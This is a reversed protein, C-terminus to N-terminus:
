EAVAVRARSSRFMVAILAGAIFGGIHCDFATRSALIEANWLSFSQVLIYFGLVIWAPVDIRRIFFWVPCFYSTIRNAPFLVAYAGMVGSIAGSAGVLPLSSGADFFLHMAGGSAAAVLYFPLFLASGLREEVNDAFIYFFWLNSILHMWSAHLFAYTVPMLTIGLPSNTVSVVNRYQESVGKIGSQLVCDYTPLGNLFANPVLGYRLVFMIEEHDNGLGVFWQYIYILTTFGILGYTVYPKIRVETNNQDHLPIFM